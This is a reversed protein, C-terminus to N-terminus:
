FLGVVCSLRKHKTNANTFVLEARGDSVKLWSNQMDCRQVRGVATVSMACKRTMDNLLINASKVAAYM